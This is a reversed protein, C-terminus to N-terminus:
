INQRKSTAPEANLIFTRRHAARGPNFFNLFTLTQGFFFSVGFSNIGGSSELGVAPIQRLADKDPVRPQAGM